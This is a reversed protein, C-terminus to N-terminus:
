NPGCGEQHKLEDRLPCKREIWRQQMGMTFQGHKGAQWRKDSKLFVRAAVDEVCVCTPPFRCVIVLVLAPLVASALAAVM